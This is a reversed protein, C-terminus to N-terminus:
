ALKLEGIIKQKEKPSIYREKPIRNIVEDSQSNKSASTIKDAIKNGILDGTAKATEKLIKKGATKAFTESLDIGKDMLSKSYKDSFNRAFSMFGYGKVYRSERPEISYRM